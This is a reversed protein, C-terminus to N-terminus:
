KWAEVRVTELADREARVSRARAHAEDSPSRADLVGHEAGRPGAAGAAGVAGVAARRKTICGGVRCL